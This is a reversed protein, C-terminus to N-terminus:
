RFRVTSVEQNGPFQPEIGGSRSPFQACQPRQRARQAVIPGATIRHWDLRWSSNSCGNGCRSLVQPQALMSIILPHVALSLPL